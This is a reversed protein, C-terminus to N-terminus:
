HLDLYYPLFEKGRNNIESIFQNIEEQFNSNKLSSLKECLSKILVIEKEHTYRDSAMCCFATQLSLKDFNLTSM